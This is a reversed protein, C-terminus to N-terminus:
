RSFVFTIPQTHYSRVNEGNVQGPRWKPGSKVVDEAARGMGYGPENMAKVRTLTGDPEVIFRVFVTYTGDPIGRRGAGTIFQVLSTELHRRWLNMNVSAQVEPKLMVTTDASATDTKSIRDQAQAQGLLLTLFCIAFVKMYSFYFSRVM